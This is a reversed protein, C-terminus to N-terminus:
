RCIIMIFLKIFLNGCFKVTARPTVKSFVRGALSTPTSVVKHETPTTPSEIVIEPAEVIAVEDSTPVTILPTTDRRKIKEDRGSEKECRKEEEEEELAKKIERHGAEKKKDTLISM